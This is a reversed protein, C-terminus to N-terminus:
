DCHQEPSAFKQLSIQKTGHCAQACVQSKAELRALVPLVLAAFFQFDASTGWAGTSRQRGAHGAAQAAQAAERAHALAQRKLGSQFRALLWPLASLVAPLRTTNMRDVEESLVQVHAHPEKGESTHM